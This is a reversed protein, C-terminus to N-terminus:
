RAKRAECTSVPILIEGGQLRVYAVTSEDFTGQSYNAPRVGLELDSLPPRADCTTYDGVFSIKGRYNAFQCRDVNRQSDLWCGVFQGRPSWDFPAPPGAVWVSGSPWHRPLRPPITAWWFRSATILLLVVIGGLVVGIIKLTKMKTTNALRVAQGV